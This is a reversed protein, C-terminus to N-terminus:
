RTPKADTSMDMAGFNENQVFRCYAEIRQLHPSNRLKSAENLPLCLPGSDGTMNETFDLQQAIRDDDQVGALDDCGARWRREASV